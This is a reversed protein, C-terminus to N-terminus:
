HSMTWAALALAIAGASLCGAIPAPRQLSFPVLFSFVLLDLHAKVALQYKLM